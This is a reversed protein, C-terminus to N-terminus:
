CIFQPLDDSFTSTANASEIAELSTSNSFMNDILTSTKSIRTPLLIHPLLFKSSLTDIFNNILDSLECKLLDINFDDSM